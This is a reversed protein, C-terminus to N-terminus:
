IKKIWQAITYIVVEDIHGEVGYEQPTSKGEGVIFLHNLNPFLKLQANSRSNLATKWGEFDKEPLVQYDRGGQLILVPVNLKKVTETPSYGRLDLWYVASIGLPLENAPVNSSLEPDKVRVIKAKLDELETKQEDTMPGALSNLYTFQDLIIDELPRTIGAMIILGALQSNQKAIRPALTAGLSHGLLFVRKPDIQPTQRMLQIAFLADDTVEEKVTMQAILKPTFMQAYEFTRKEYRLVAIGQSALGWALDRFIRNPGITEDRDSPGSGQVLVVGPFTGQDHPLTLTGPLAWQGEGVTVDVEHFASTDVYNPAHYKTEAPMLNLGSIQGRINFIIQVDLAAREFQCRIFVVRYSEMEATRVVTLRLLNGAPGIFRQWFEQFKVEPFVVKMQDDFRSSAAAFDAQLFQGVFNQALVKLDELSLPNM